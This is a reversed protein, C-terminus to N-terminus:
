VVMFYGQPWLVTYGHLLGEFISKGMRPVYRSCKAEHVTNLLSRQETERNLEHRGKQIFPWWCIPVKASVCESIDLM